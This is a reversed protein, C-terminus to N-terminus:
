REPTGSKPLNWAKGAFMLSSHFDNDPVFMRAGKQLFFNSLM